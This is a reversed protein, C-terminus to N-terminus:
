RGTELRMALYEPLHAEHIKEQVAGIPYDYRVWEVRRATEDFRVFSADPNLDRPQGVSGVDIIYRKNPELDLFGGKQMHKHSVTGDNELVWHEAIHTHGVFILPADTANFAKLASRKDLIYEFYNVPAGHVLLFSPLRLEYSLGNLWGRNDEDLVHQTWAIAAKAVDNFYEVGFNELAALDHNGLVAHKARERIMRTCENPNPGYGVIDGLCMVVDDDDILAFARQLSELNGHIDSVISYKM